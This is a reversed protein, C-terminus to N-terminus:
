NIRVDNMVKRHFVKVITSIGKEGGLRDFLVPDSKERVCAAGM